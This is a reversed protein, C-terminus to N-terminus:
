RPYYYKYEVLDLKMGKAIMDDFCDVAGQKTAPYLAQPPLAYKAHEERCVKEFYAALDAASNIITIHAQIM